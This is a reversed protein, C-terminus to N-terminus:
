PQSGERSFNADIVDYDSGDLTCYYLKKQDYCESLLDLDKM